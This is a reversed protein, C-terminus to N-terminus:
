RPELTETWTIRMGRIVKSGFKSLVGDDRLEIAERVQVPGTSLEYTCRKDLCALSGVVEGAQNIVDHSGDDRPRLKMVETQWPSGEGGRRYTTEIANPKVTVRTDYEGASGDAAHWSGTGAYTGVPLATDAAMAPVIAILTTLVFLVAPHRM